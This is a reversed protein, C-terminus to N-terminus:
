TVHCAMGYWLHQRNHSWTAVKLANILQPVLTKHGAAQSSVGVIHVDADLAQRVVEEPTSFLPGIDVDFGLDAFGSAIVKAGRDHGDQGMKAVLIRPRRGHAEAFKNVRDLVGKIEDPGKHESKYAGSVVRNSPTHRGFVKELTDSIEGVTARAKAAEIAMTLMNDDGTPSRASGPARTLCSRAAAELRAIATEYTKPDREARIKKLRGNDDVIMLMMCNFCRSIHAYRAVQSNRVATNDINLVPIPDEKELRYKNVGVIVDHGSDIRAQKRAASEEIRLKPMGSVVAKTM